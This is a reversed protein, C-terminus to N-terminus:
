STIDWKFVLSVNTDQPGSPTTLKIAYIRGKRIINVGSTMSDFDVVQSTDDAINIATTKSGVAGLAPVETGDASEHIAFILDGNQAIESRFVARELTGNYPAVIAVFENSSALSTKEFVYGALPLFNATATAYFNTVKTEYHYKGIGVIDTGGGDTFCLEEPDENKVWIQGYTDIDSNASAKELISLSGVNDLFLGKSNFKAFQTSADKITIDGGDANFEIDGAVDLALDGSSVDIKNDSLTLYKNDGIKISSDINNSAINSTKIKGENNIFLGTPEDEIYIQQFDKSLTGRIKLEKSM